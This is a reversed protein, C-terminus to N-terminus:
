RGGGFPVKLTASVHPGLDAIERLAEIADHAAALAAEATAIRNLLVGHRRQRCALIRCRGSCFRAEKRRARFPGACQECTRDQPGTASPRVYDQPNGALPAGPDARFTDM